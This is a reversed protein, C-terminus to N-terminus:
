SLFHDANMSRTRLAIACIAAAPMLLALAFGTQWVLSPLYGREGLWQFGEWLVPSTFVMWCFAMTIAIWVPRMRDEQRRLQAARARVRLQTSRVLVSSAAVSAGHLGQLQQQVEKAKAVCAECNELHSDLWQQEHQALGEVLFKSTLASAIQHEDHYQQM